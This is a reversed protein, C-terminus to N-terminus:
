SDKFPTPKPTPLAATVTAHREELQAIRQNLIRKLQAFSAQNTDPPVTLELKLLINRLAVILHKPTRDM